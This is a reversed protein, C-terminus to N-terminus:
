GYFMSSNALIFSQPKKGIQPCFTWITQIACGSLRMFQTFRYLFKSEYDTFYVLVANDEPVMVIKHVDGGNSRRKNEFYYTLTDKSTKEGLNTVYVCNSVTVQSITLTSKELQKGNITELKASDVIYIIYQQEYTGLQVMLIHSISGNIIKQKAGWHVCLM